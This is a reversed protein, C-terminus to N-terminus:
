FWVGVKAMIANQSYIPPGVFQTAFGANEDKNVILFLQKAELGVVIHSKPFMYSAYLIPGIYVDTLFRPTTVPEGYFSYVLYQIEGSQYTLSGGIGTTFNKHTYINYLYDMCYHEIFITTIEGSKKTDDILGYYNTGGYSEYSIKLNNKNHKTISFSIGLGTSPNYKKDAFWPIDSKWNKLSHFFQISCLYKKKKPIESGSCYGVFSIIYVIVIYLYKM